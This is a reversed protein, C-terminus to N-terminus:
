TPPVTAVMRMCCPWWTVMRSLRQWLLRWSTGGAGGENFGVNGVAGADLREEALELGVADEVEGSKNFGALGHLLGLEVEAIVGGLGEREELGHESGADVPEDEGGGGGNVAFGFDGGDLLGRFESGGVGVAFGFKEDLVHEAPEVLNM